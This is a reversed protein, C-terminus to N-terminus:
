QPTRQPPRSALHARIRDQRDDSFVPALRAITAIGNATTPALRMSPVILATGLMIRRTREAALAMVAWPNSRLLPSDSIWAVDYGLNEAHTIFGVEDIKSCTIGFRM